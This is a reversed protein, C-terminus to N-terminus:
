TQSLEGVKLLKSGSVFGSDGFLPGLTPGLGSFAAAVRLAGTAPTAALALLGAQM